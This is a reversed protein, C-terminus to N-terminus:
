GAPNFKFALSSDFVNCDTKPGPLEVLDTPICLTEPIVGRYIFPTLPIDLVLWNTIQGIIFFM